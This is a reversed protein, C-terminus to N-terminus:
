LMEERKVLDSVERVELLVKSSVGDSAGDIVM